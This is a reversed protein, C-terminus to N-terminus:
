FSIFGAANKLADPQLEYMLINEDPFGNGNKINYMISANFGFRSYYAPDGALVVATYGLNRATILSNSVLLSGVGTNRQDKRVCLPALLLIEKISGKNNYTFRSFMIYGALEGAIEAVLSLEPIYNPSKRIDTVFDAENGESVKATKFAEKVLLYINNYDKVKEKRIIMM